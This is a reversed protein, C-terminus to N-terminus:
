SNAPECPDYPKLAAISTAYGASIMRGIFAEGSPEAWWDALAHPDACDVAMQFEYAM